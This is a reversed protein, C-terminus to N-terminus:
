MVNRRKAVSFMGERGAGGNKKRANPIFLKFTKKTITMYM